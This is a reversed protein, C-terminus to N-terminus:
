YVMKRKAAIAREEKRIKELEGRIKFSITEFDEAQINKNEEANYTEM